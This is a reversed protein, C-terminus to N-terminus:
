KIRKVTVAHDINDFKLKYEGSSKYIMVKPRAYTYTYTFYETQEWIQGNDLKFINGKSFGSFSNTVYGEVLSPTSSSTSKEVTGISGSILKFKVSENMGDVLMKYYAGSKVLTVRPRYRYSYTYKYEAQQWVQGNTLKYEKNSDFGEFEGDITSEIVDPTTRYTTESKLELRQLTQEAKTDSVTEEKSDESFSTENVQSSRIQNRSRKMESLEHLSIGADVLARKVCKFRDKDLYNLIINGHDYSEIEQALLQLTSVGRHPDDYGIKTTCSCECIKEVTSKDILQYETKVLNQCKELIGNSKNLEYYLFVYACVSIIVWICILIYFIIKIIRM